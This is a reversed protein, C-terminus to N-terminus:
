KTIAQAVTEALITAGEGNPHVGDPMLDNKGTMAKYLDIVPLNREKALEKVMPMVEGAVVKETIGWRDQAVPVPACVFVKPKSPLGQFHDIMAAYDALYEEKFKWNQPKSDNTGLKIVVINPAFDTANKFHPQNWYPLDGKKLMTAANRGFNKVEYKEGLMKALQAPYSNNDRDRIAAGFTISDGVCAVRTKCDDAQAPATVTLCLAFVAILALSCLTRLM